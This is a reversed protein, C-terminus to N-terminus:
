EPLNDLVNSAKAAMETVFAEAFSRGIWFRLQKITLKVMQESGEKDSDGM